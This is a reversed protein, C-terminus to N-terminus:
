KPTSAGNKIAQVVKSSENMPGSFVIQDHNLYLIRPAWLAESLPALQFNNKTSDNPDKLVQLLYADTLTLMPFCSLKGVYVEGTSLYVISLTKESQWKFFIGVALVAIVVVAIFVILLNKNNM